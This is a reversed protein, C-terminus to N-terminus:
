LLSCSPIGVHMANSSQMTHLGSSSRYTLDFHTAEFTIFTLQTQRVIQILENTALTTLFVNLLKETSQHLYATTNTKHVM